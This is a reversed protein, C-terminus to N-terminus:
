HKLERNTNLFYFVYSDEWKMPIDQTQLWPKLKQIASYNSASDLTYLIDITDAHILKGYQKLQPWICRIQKLIKDVPFSTMFYMAQCSVNQMDGFLIWYDIRLGWSTRQRINRLQRNNNTQAKIGHNLFTLLITFVRAKRPQLITFKIPFLKFILNAEIFYGIIM